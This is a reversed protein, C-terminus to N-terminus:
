YKPPATSIVAHKKGGLCCQLILTCVEEEAAAVTHRQKQLAHSDQTHASALSEKLQSGHQQLQALRDAHLALGEQLASPLVELM